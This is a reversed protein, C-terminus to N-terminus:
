KLSYIIFPVCGSQEQTLSANWNPFTADRGWYEWGVDMWTYRALCAHLSCYEHYPSVLLHAYNNLYNSTTTSSQWCYSLHLSSKPLMKRSHHWDENAEKSESVWRILTPTKAPLWCSNVSHRALLNPSPMEWWKFLAIWFPSNRHHRSSCFPQSRSHSGRHLFEGRGQFTDTIKLIQSWVRM